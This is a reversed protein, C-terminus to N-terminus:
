QKVEVIMDFWQGYREGDLTVDFAVISVGTKANRDTRLRVPFSARSTSSVKGNLVPPQAKIGPPTHIEIRHHQDRQRFNRVVIRVEASGGPALTVRYPEAKVWYPDFRYRYDPDPSLAQYARIINQAWQHYREILASPDPMVFSHGGILLDPQLKKLYAAGYLYGEEFIASNRAVVAEHGDQKPDAPSGFVNDGTFAIRKGDLELWLCCGFETQGPMWDLQLRHGEWRFVEGDRFRRDISLSDVGSNYSQIMAAYDYREPHECKDAIRDLTWMQAGYKERLHSGLLFHDGHMHSIVMADIQKLGLHQRMGLIARDMFERGMLGCDVVLARGSDAIIIGFNSGENPRMLKFLHPTVQHVHAVATPRSVPDKQEDTVHHVPYGRVYIAALERLKRRYDALQTKPDAITPGHSPLLRVPAEAAIRDVSAMLTELGKGFGYDWETDFWTHMRAGELIVDGSFALCEGEVDLYYTTGGPSNGPTERCRLRHGRWTFTDEAQFTKTIPIAEIPPRVYSAGYVTFPDDLSPRMKRFAEPREFLPRESASTATKANGNRLLPFGQCQERHHHTFLVWDIKTVGIQKLHSLVSGDGLDILIASDGEKLVYVNCTDTWRYLHPCRQPAARQWESREIGTGTANVVLGPPHSPLPDKEHLSAHRETEFVHAIALQPIPEDRPRDATFLDLCTQIIKLLVRRKQEKGPWGPDSTVWLRAQVQKGRAKWYDLVADLERWDFRGEEPELDSWMWDVLVYNVLPTNIERPVVVTKDQADRSPPIRAALRGVTPAHALEQGDCVIRLGAHSPAEATDTEPWLETEDHVAMGIQEVHNRRGNYWLLWRDGDRVVFPKYCADHDWRGADPSIIPNAPHRQWNTVGDRSRAMGIQAHDVDRFGIYFAVHWGDHRIVQCATVKHQEWPSDPDARFVPNQSHKKWHIGDQSTAYGIADPEYQEGGSYWMRWQRTAQDWLVHPCMVAVKEWPAEPSLVPKPSKRKWTVGDASTACGIWSHGPAQGTYWMHYGDNRRLVVPRNVDSEWDMAENPGLVITPEDWHIGDASEVLAISKKPRWSFWMRFRNAERLVAVDFCTGLEGGFVPNEKWKRWGGATGATAAGLPWVGLVLAWICTGAALRRMAANAPLSM